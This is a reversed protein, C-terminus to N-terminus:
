DRPGSALAALTEAAVVRDDFPLREEGVQQYTEHGKGAVVVVDGQDARRLALGIAKRRDPEVVLRGDRAAGASFGACVQAIIEDPGEHRPNDSTVISLAALREAAAGMLPRKTADRDGGCGFVVLVSGRPGVLGQADRLVAELAAPTHAFDVLVVPGGAREAGSSRVVLELRGPVVPAAALGAAVTPPDIGLAFATEAALLANDVNARGTLRTVVRVGRWTFATRGAEVEVDSVLHGQVAVLPVAATDLIRRGWPDDANVIGLRTRQPTFLSAKARWYDEMTGHFDLHDHSLNTFVAVDFDIGDVRSQVLAHSSVEMAVAPRRGGAPGRDLADALMRQLENAEPTTREGTLTGVVSTPVGSQSLAAAVLHTVTTKGNTGTVGVITMDRSPHGFFAASVAALAPRARGPAVRVQPVEHVGRVLQECVLGIAGRKVAEAAHTHGDDSTGPLCVFLDGPATRRSDHEIGSVDVARPDGVTELVDVEDLLRNM